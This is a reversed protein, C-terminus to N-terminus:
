KRHVALRKEVTTLSRQLTANREVLSLMLNHNDELDRTLETFRRQYASVESLLNDYARRADAIQTDKPASSKTM